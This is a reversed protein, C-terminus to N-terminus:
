NHLHTPNLIHGSTAGARCTGQSLPWAGFPAAAILAEKLFPLGGERSGGEGGAGQGSESPDACSSVPKPGHIPRQAATHIRGMIGKLPSNRKLSERTETLAAARRFCSAARGGGHVRPDPLPLSTGGQSPETGGSGPQRSQAKGATAPPTERQGLVEPLGREEEEQLSFAKRINPKHSEHFSGRTWFPCKWPYNSELHWHLKGFRQWGTDGQIGQLVRVVSWAPDTQRSRASVQPQM